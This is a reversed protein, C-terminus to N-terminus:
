VCREGRLGLIATTVGFGASAISLVSLVLFLPWGHTFQKIRWAFLQQIPAATRCM